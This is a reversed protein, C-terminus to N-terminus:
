RSEDDVASEMGCSTSAEVLLSVTVDLSEAAILRPSCFCRYFISFSLNFYRDFTSFGLFIVFHRLKQGIDCSCFHSLYSRFTFGDLLM